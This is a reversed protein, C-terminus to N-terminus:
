CIFVIDLPKELLQPRSYANLWNKKITSTLPSVPLFFLILFISKREGFSMVVIVTKALQVMISDIIIILMTNTNKPQKKV